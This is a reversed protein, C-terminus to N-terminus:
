GGMWSGIQNPDPNTATAAKRDLLSGVGLYAFFGVAMGVCYADFAANKFIAVVAAGGIAGIVSAIDGIAVTDTKRRLTRYTVWGIVLGFCFPGWFEM